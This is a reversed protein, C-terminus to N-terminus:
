GRAVPKRRVFFLSSLFTLALFALWIKLPLPTALRAANDWLELAHPLDEPPM